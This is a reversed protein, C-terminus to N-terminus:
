LECSWMSGQLGGIKERRWLSIEEEREQVVTWGRQYKQVEKLEKILKFTRWPRQMAISPSDKASREM